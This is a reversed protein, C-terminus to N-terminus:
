WKAGKMVMWLIFCNSCNSTSYLIFYFIIQLLIYNPISHLRGIGSGLSALFGTFMRYTEYIQFTKRFRYHTLDTFVCNLSLDLVLNILVFLINYFWYQRYHWALRYIFPICLPTILITMLNFFFYYSFIANGIYAPVYNLSNYSDHRTEDFQYFGKRLLFVDGYFRLVSRWLIFFFIFIFLGTNIRWSILLGNKVEEIEPIIEHKPTVKELILLLSEKIYEFTIQLNVLIFVFVLTTIALNILYKLPLYVPYHLELRRLNFKFPTFALVLKNKAGLKEYSKFVMPKRDKPAIKFKAAWFISPKAFFRQYTYEYFVQDKATKFYSLVRGKRLSTIMIYFISLISLGLLVMMPINKINNLYAYVEWGIFGLVVLITICTTKIRPNNSYNLFGYLFTLITLFGSEVFIVISSFDFYSVKKVTVSTELVSLNEFDAVKSLFSSVNLYNLYLCCFFLLYLM